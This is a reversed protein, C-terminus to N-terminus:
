SSTLAQINVKINKLMVAMILASFAAAAAIIFAVLYSQTMDFIQGGIWSGLAGGVRAGATAAGVLAMISKLGFFQGILLPTQPVEGGYAFSFLVAFIYLMWLQKSYILWVLSVTLGLCCIVMTSGSGIRDSVTGMVLRGIASGIGVVSVITAATLPTIDLDTAYNVLHVMVLQVCVNFIFFLFMLMWMYHTRVANRLAVGPVDQEEIKKDNGTSYQTTDDGYPQYGMERPDRRLLLSSGIMFIWAGLGIIFYAGSWDFAAILREAIPPIVLTGLGIGASVIGLALGRKKVFWRAAVGTGIAFTGGSGIGVMVGFTAYLQWLDSIQGALVLGLGIMFSCVAMVKAPGFRDALWGLPVASAGACIMFLSYIGSATARNWGFDTILPKFFISFSYQIGWQIATLVTCAAVVVWGYFFTRKM